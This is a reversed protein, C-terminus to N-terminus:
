LENGQLYFNGTGVKSVVTGSPWTVPLPVYCVGSSAIVPLMQAVGNVKYSTPVNQSASQLFGVFTKGESVTYVSADSGFVSTDIVILRGGGAPDQMPM